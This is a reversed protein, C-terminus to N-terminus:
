TQARLESGTGARGPAPRAERRGRYPREGAAQKAYLGLLLGCLALAASASLQAWFGEILKAETDSYVLGPRGADLGERADVLLSVAVGILVVLAIGRALRWRGLLTPVTLVIAALGLAALVYFHPSGAQERDTLPAEAVASVDAYQPEGVAVGRYDVFQSVCLLAAAGATVAALARAPTVAKSVRRMARAAGGSVRDRLWRLVAEVLDLLIAILGAPIRVLFFLARVLPRAVWALGREFPTTLPRLRRRTEWAAGRLGVGLRERYVGLAELRVSPARRGARGPEREAAIRAEEKVRRTQEALGDSRARRRPKFRRLRKSPVRM